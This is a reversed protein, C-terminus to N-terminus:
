GGGAYNLLYFSELYDIALGKEKEINMDGQLAEICKVAQRCAVKGSKGLSISDKMDEIARGRILHYIENDM